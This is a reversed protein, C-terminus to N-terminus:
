LWIYTMKVRDMVTRYSQPLANDERYIYGVSFCADSCALPSFRLNSEDVVGAKKLSDFALSDLLGIGGQSLVFNVIMMCSNMRAQVNCLDDIALTENYFRTMAKDSLVAVQRGALDKPEVSDDRPFPCPDCWVVGVKANFFPEFCFGEKKLRQASSPFVEATFVPEFQKEKLRALGQEFSVENINLVSLSKTVDSIMTIAQTVYSSSMWPLRNCTSAAPSKILDGLAAQYEQVIRKAHVLFLRGAQTLDVGRNTRNVLSVGLEEELAAIAKGYGQQSIFTSEAAKSFSSSHELEIFYRLNDIQLVGGFGAKM